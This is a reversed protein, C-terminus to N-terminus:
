NQCGWKGTEKGSKKSEASTSNCRESCRLLLVQSVRLELNMKGATRWFIYADQSLHSFSAANKGFSCGFPFPVELYWLFSLICTSCLLCTSKLPKKKNEKQKFNLNPHLPSFSNYVKLFQNLSFTINEQYWKLNSSHPNHINPILSSKLSLRLVQKAWYQWSYSAQKLDGYTLLLM